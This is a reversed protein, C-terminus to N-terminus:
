RIIAIQYTEDSQKWTVPATKAIGNLVRELDEKLDLKGDCILGGSAEDCIIRKGYYRSLKEMIVHLPENDFLYIGEKWLIYRNVDVKRIRETGNKVELMESPALTMSGHATKVTVMGEVLVVSRTAEGERALINFSTGKVMVDLAGTRVTFPAHEARAVELFVEGDVYIERRDRHFIAPYVVRTGANVWLRSGDSLTLLTRKGPPVVLQNYTLTEAEEAAKEGIPRSNVQVEGKETYEIEVNNEAIAIEKEDNLILSIQELTDVRNLNMAAHLIDDRDIDGSRTHYYFLTGILLAVSAAVSGMLLHIRLRKKRSRVTSILQQWLEEVEPDPLEKHEVRLKRSLTRYLEDFEEREPDNLSLDDKMKKNKAYRPHVALSLEVDGHFCGKLM